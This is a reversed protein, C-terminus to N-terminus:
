YCRRRRSQGVRAPSATAPAPVAVPTPAAQPSDIRRRVMALPTMSATRRDTRIAQLPPSVGGAAVKVSLGVLAVMVAPPVPCVKVAVSVFLLAVMLQLRTPLPESEVSVPAVM